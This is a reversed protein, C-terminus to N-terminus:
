DRHQNIHDIAIHLPEFFDTGGGEFNLQNQCLQYDLKEPGYVLKAVNSFKVM